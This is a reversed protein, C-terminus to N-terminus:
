EHKENASYHFRCQKIINLKGEDVGFYFSLGCQEHSTKFVHINCGKFCNRCKDIQLELRDIKCAKYFDFRRKLNTLFQWKTEDDIVNANKFVMDEDVLREITSIDMAKFAELITSLFGDSSAAKSAPPQKLASQIM